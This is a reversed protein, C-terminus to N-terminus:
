DFSRNHLFNNQEATRIPGSLRGRRPNQQRLKKLKMRKEIRVLNCPNKRRKIRFSCCEGRATLHNFPHTAQRAIALAECKFRGARALRIKTQQLLAFAGIPSETEEVEPKWIRFHRDGSYRASHAMAAVAYRSIHDDPPIIRADRVHSIEVKRQRIFRFDVIIGVSLSDQDRLLAAPKLQLNVIRLTPRQDL